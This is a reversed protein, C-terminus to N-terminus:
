PKLNKPRVAFRLGAAEYCDGYCVPSEVVLDVRISRVLDTDVPSALSDGEADFYSFRMRTLGVRIEEFPNGNLKRRLMCDAPNPTDAMDSPGSAAYYITDVTGDDGLDALFRIRTSDAMIVAPGYVGYGVKRLDDTVFDTVTEASAQAVYELSRQYSRATVDADMRMVSVALMSGILFSGLIDLFVSM